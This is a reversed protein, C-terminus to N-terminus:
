EYMREVIQTIIIYATITAIYGIIIWIFQVSRLFSIIDNSSSLSVVLAVTIIILCIFILADFAAM